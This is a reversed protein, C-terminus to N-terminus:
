YLMSAVLEASTDISNAAAELYVTLNQLTTFLAVAAASTMLKICVDNM